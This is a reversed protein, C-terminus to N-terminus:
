YKLLKIMHNYIEKNILDIKVLYKKQYFLNMIKNKNKQYIKLKNKLKKYLSIM